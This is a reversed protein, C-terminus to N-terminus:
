KLDELKEIEYTNVLFDLSMNLKVVSHPILIYKWPKGGNEVNFATANLCYELAAKAKAKVDIDD